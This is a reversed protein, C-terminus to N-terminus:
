GPRCVALGYGSVGMKVKICGAWIRMGRDQSLNLWGMCECGYGSRSVALGFVGLM